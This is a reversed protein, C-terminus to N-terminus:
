SKPKFFKKCEPYKKKVQSYSVAIAQKRSKFNGKKFERMNVRIKDSLKNKCDQLTLKVSKKFSRKFSARPRRKSRRKRRSNTRNTNTNSKKKRARTINVTVMTDSPPTSEIIYRRGKFMCYFKNESKSIKVSNGKYVCRGMGAIAKM